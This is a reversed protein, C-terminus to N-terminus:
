KKSNMDRLLGSARAAYADNRRVIDQLLIQSQAVDNRYVACLALYWRAPANYIGESALCKKFNVEAAEIEADALYASALYFHVAQDPSTLTEFKQAAGAYDGREYSQFAEAKVGIENEGRVTPMSVNPYPTYYAVFLPPTTNRNHLGFWAASVVLLLSAAAAIWRYSRVRKAKKEARSLDDELTKLEDKLANRASAKVGHLVTRVDNYLEAFESENKLRTELQVREQEDMTKRIYREIQVIDDAESM